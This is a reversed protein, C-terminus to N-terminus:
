QTSWLKRSHRKLRRKFTNVQLMAHDHWTIGNALVGRSEIFVKSFVKMVESPSFKTSYCDWTGHKFDQTSSHLFIERLDKSGRYVIASDGLMHVHAAQPSFEYTVVPKNKSSFEACSLGFSEGLGRAHIMADCTQIFRVKRDLNSDGALFRIREHQAFPAINFFVFYLDPRRDVSDKVARRVFEIDFSSAGGMGGFVLAGSPIGLEDRLCGKVDPLSVIHPVWPIKGNSFELSLWESVFAFADGHVEKIKTPFVAHICSYISSFCKEDREGSKIFYAREVGRKNASGELESFNEYPLLEVMQSMNALVGADNESNSSRYAVIVEHGLGLLGQCYDRVAVATGRLNLSDTHLLWKM